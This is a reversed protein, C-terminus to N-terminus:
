LFGGQDQIKDALDLSGAEMAASAIAEVVAKSGLAASEAMSALAGSITVSFFSAALVPLHKVVQENISRRIAGETEAGDGSLWAKIESEIMPAIVKGVESVVMRDLDSVGRVPVGNKDTLPVSKHSRGDWKHTMLVDGNAFRDIGRRILADKEEPTLVDFLADKVKEELRKTISDPDFTTMTTDDTM